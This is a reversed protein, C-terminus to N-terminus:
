QDQERYGSWTDRCHIARPFNSIGSDSRGAMVARALVGHLRLRARLVLYARREAVDKRCSAVVWVKAVDM